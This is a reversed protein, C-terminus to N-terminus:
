KENTERNFGLKKDLFLGNQEIFNDISILKNASWKRLFSTTKKNTLM